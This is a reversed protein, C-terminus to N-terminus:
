QAAYGEIYVTGTYTDAPISGPHVSFDIQTPTCPMLPGPLIVEVDYDYDYHVGLLQVDFRDITKGLTTGLMKTSEVGIQLPVNGQNWLTAFHSEGDAVASPSDFTDNGAIWKETNPLIKGFNVGDFDLALVLVPLVQLKSYDIFYANTSGNQDMAVLKVGYWGAPQHTHYTFCGRYLAKVNKVIGNNYYLTKDAATILNSGVATDFKGEINTLDTIRDMHVQVKFSGSPMPHYIDFYVDNIDAIGNPDSVVAYLCITTESGVGPVPNDTRPMVQTGTASSDCDIWAWWLNVEPPSQSGDIVAETGVSSGQALVPMVSGFVLAFVVLVFLAKKM